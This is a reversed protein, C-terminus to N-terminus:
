GLVADASQKLAEIFRDLDAADFALPPRIKLVNGHPGSASILVRRARLDNVIASAVDPAPAGHEDVFEAGIFLGAGRAQSLVGRPELIERVAALMAAGVKGAQERLQEEFLVDLVANAAAIPVSSGGFTNFYRVERDFRETLEPRFVVASIPLGNGMPKGLTVMDPVIGHRCFGWWDDGLRGFGPQVEDAVYVGGASHV